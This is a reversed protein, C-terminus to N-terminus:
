IFRKVHPWVEAFPLRAGRLVFIPLDNEYPMCDACTHVAEQEVSAFVEEYGHRDGGLAIV